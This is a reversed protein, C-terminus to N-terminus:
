SGIVVTAVGTEGDIKYSVKQGAHWSTGSPDDPNDSELVYTGPWADTVTGDANLYYTMDGPAGDTIYEAQAQALGTRINAKDTAVSGKNIDEGVSKAIDSEAGSDGGDVGGSGGCGMLALASVFALSFAIAWYRKM